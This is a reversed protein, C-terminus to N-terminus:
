SPQVSSSIVPPRRTIRLLIWAVVIGIVLSVLLFYSISVILPILGIMTLLISLFAIGFRKMSVDDWYEHKQSRYPESNVRLRVWWVDYVLIFVLFAGILVFLLSSLALFYAGILLIPLLGFHRLIYFALSRRRIRPKGAQSM